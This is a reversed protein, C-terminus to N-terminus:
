LGRYGLRPAPDIPTLILSPAIRDIYRYVRNIKIELPDFQGLLMLAAIEGHNHLEKEIRWRTIASGEPAPTKIGVRKMAERLNNTSSASASAKGSRGTYCIPMRDDGTHALHRDIGRKLLRASFEGLAVTRAQNVRNVGPLLITSPQMLNDFDAACVSTTEMPRAGTEAIAYQM